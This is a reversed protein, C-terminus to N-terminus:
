RNNRSYVPFNARKEATSLTFVIFDFVRSPRAAISPQKKIQPNWGSYKERHPSISVNKRMALRTMQAAMQTTIRSFSCPFSGWSFAAKRSLASKRRSIGAASSM